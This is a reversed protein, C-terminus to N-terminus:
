WLEVRRVGCRAQGPRALPRSRPAGSSVLPLLLVSFFIAHLCFMLLPGATAPLFKLSDRPEEPALVILDPGIVVRSKKNKFDYIQMAVNYPCNLSVVESPDRKSYSGSSIKSALESM